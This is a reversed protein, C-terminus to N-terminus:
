NGDKRFIIFVERGTRSQISITPIEQKIMLFYQSILNITPKLQVAFPPGSETPDKDTPFLLGVLEGNPKLIHHVMELYDQRRSPNIACFCTYELVIDFHNTYFLDLDFIDMLKIDIKLGNQESAIQMNKVASEAFDVATVIHGKSAFNIADWGNGAGLICISLPKKCTEIWQDFIPTPRGIDWGMEGSKYSSEWYEPSFPAHTNNKSINM